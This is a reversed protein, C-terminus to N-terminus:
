TTARAIALIASTIGIEVTSGVSLARGRVFQKTPTFHIVQEVPFDSSTKQEFTAGAITAFDSSATSVSEQIEYDVTVDTTTDSTGHLALYAKCERRGVNVYIALDVENSVADTTTVEANHLTLLDYERM